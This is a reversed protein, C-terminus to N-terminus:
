AGGARAGSCARAARGPARVGPAPSALAVIAGYVFGRVAAVRSRRAPEPPVRAPLALSERTLRRVEEMGALLELM